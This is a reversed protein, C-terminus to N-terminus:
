GFYRFYITAEPHKNERFVVFYYDLYKTVLFINQSM